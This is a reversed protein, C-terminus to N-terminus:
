RDFIGEFFVGDRRVVADEAPLDPVVAIAGGIAGGLDIVLRDAGPVHVMRGPRDLRVAAATLRDSDIAVVAGTQTSLYTRDGTSDVILQEIPGDLDLRTATRADFDFVVIQRDGVTAVARRRGPLPELQRITGDIVLPTLARGRDDELRDLDAFVVGAAGPSWLLAFQGIGGEARPAEFPLIQSVPLATPIAQRDATRPEIISVGPLSSDVTFVRPGSEVEIVAMDGPRQGAPLQNLYPRPVAQRDTPEAFGLSFIDDAADARVFAVPAGDVEALVVQRPSVSRTEAELTLHVIVEDAEPAALDFVALYRDSLAWALQRTAGAVEAVPSIVIRSPADGFARLTREVVAGSARDVIAIQNPNQVVDIPGDTGQYLVLREGGPAFAAQGYRASLPVSLEVAPTDGGFGLWRLGPGDDLLVLGSRDPAVFAAHPTAELPVFATRMTDPALSFVAPQGRLLWVAHRDLAIATSPDLPREFSEPRGCAALLACLTLAGLTRWRASTARADGPRASMM